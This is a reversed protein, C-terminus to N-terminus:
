ASSTATHEKDLTGGEEEEEEEALSKSSMGAATEPSYAYKSRKRITAGFKYFLFPIVCCALSIFAMLTSAWEYGLRHYMQITFLPVCAGWVSRVFTKAALASAAYHQYSDVIYNNAPNYLCNFGFGCALGSFCPGAWSIHPYSSWAFSFLGAPVFWCGIMMPFLRLEPPPLEGKDRYIKAKRNYQNNFLPCVVTALIVGVGIPIFMLGTKSASWGKGEMYVIPYAFFFMYLLGYIISMYITLLFVILESLLVIPRSLTEKVTESVTRTKLESLSRYRDDGTLKRLKKARVKLIQSHSTEPLLLLVAAYVCGSFILHVWYLWRWGANDGIYGGILPGVVPGIFPAASFISMALGRKPGTFMDSLNGGILCMPASFAVGDILRCVLLTGINKADACPIIFIIAVFLTVVYVNRRGFEESLPAFLLPGFGFGLVFLTVTLIIVEQSVHFTEMPGEIDGTVIASGLAVDFCVIGLLVTLFWKRGDSWNRPDEKDDDVFVVLRMQTELDVAYKWKDKEHYDTDPDIQFGTATRELDIPQELPGMAGFGDAEMNTVLRSIGKSNQTLLRELTSESGAEVSSQSTVPRVQGDSRSADTEAAGAAVQDSNYIGVAEVTDSSSDDSSTRRGNNMSATDVANNNERDASMSFIHISHLISFFGGAFFFVRFPGFM